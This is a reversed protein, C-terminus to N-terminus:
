DGSIKTAFYYTTKMSQDPHIEYFEYVPGNPLLGKEKMLEEIKMYVKYPGIAPSGAFTAKIFFQKEISKQQFDAPLSPPFNEVVCGAHSRLREQEVSKPNDLFEGFTIGCAENQSKVWTEVEDLVPVIKHYAGLHNKYIVKYPGYEGMEITVPKFVGLHVVLYIILLLVLSFTLSVIHRMKM